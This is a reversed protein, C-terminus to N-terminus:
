RVGDCPTCGNFFALGLCIADAENNDKQKLKLSFTENAREVALHKKNTKGKIGLKKKDLKVGAAACERKEKSLKANAKKQEKSLVLGINTRWGDSGDSNFYVLNAGPSFSSFKKVVATHINELLKQVYRDRGSNIEEIIIADYGMSGATMVYIQAAMHEAAKIYTQPYPGFSHLPKDLDITGSVQLTPKQGREGDFVAYGTHTSLDLCLIRM